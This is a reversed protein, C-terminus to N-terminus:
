NRPFKEPLQKELFKAGKDTIMKKDVM